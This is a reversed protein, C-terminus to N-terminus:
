ALDEPSFLGIQVPKYRLQNRRFGVGKVALENPRCGINRLHPMRRWM